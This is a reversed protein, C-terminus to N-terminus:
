ETTKEGFSNISFEGFVKMEAPWYHLERVFVYATGDVMKEDHGCLPWCCCGLGICLRYLESPLHQGSGRESVSWDEEKGGWTDITELLELELAQVEGIDRNM